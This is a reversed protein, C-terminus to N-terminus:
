SKRRLDQQSCRLRVAAVAAGLGVLTLTTPEPVATVQVSLHGVNGSPDLNDYEGVTRFAGDPFFFNWVVNSSSFLIEDAPSLLGADPAEPDFTVSVCTVTGACSNLQGALIVTLDSVFDPVTYTFTQPENLGFPTGTFSYMVDAHAAAASIVLMGLALVLVRTM